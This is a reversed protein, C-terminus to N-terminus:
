RSVPSTIAATGSRILGPCCGMIKWMELAHFATQGLTSRRAPLKIGDLAMVLIEPDGGRRRVARSRGTLQFREELLKAGGFEDLLKRELDPRRYMGAMSANSRGGFREIVRLPRRARLKSYFSSSTLWHSDFRNVLVADELGLFWDVELLVGFNLHEDRRRRRWACVIGRAPLRDLRQDAEDFVSRGVHGLFM